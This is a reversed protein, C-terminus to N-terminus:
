CGDHLTGCTDFGPKNPDCIAGSCAVPNVNGCDDLCMTPDACGVWCSSDPEGCSDQCVSGCQRGKCETPDFNGCDDACRSANSCTTPVCCCRSANLGCTDLCSGPHRPDCEAGACAASGAVGCDDVCTDPHACQIACANDPNGCEDVCASTPHCVGAVCPLCAGSKNCVDGNPCPCTMGGCSDRCSATDRCSPVCTETKAGGGCGILAVAALAAARRLRVAAMANLARFRGREVRPPNSPAIVLGRDQAKM